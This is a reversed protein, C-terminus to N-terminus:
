KESASKPAQKVTRPPLIALGKVGPLDVRFLAGPEGGTIYLRDMNSGAFAVNSTTLNGGPYRRVVKGEPSIVEVQRMGYHAVFLNGDADLAIGDPQNDIQGPGKEPLDVLVRYEGLKGPELVPFALIRNRKSEGVLLEKGGPRIVIGNPFALGKAITHCTGHTDLYHITGDPHEVNSSAPDTFYVGGSSPDLTLDNPGRLPKGDSESAAPQLENGAADLHLLAHRSADCILHTGDALVKHGNPAGPAAWTTAKGDPTVKTVIKDHSFYLNGDHDVVVGESYDGTRTVEVPKVDSDPPLDAGHALVPAFIGTGMPLATLLMLPFLSKKLRM